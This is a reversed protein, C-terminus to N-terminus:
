GKCRRYQLHFLMGNALDLSDVSVSSRRGKAIIRSNIRMNVDVGCKSWVNSLMLLNDRKLYDNGSKSYLRSRKTKAKQGAFFYSRRLEAKGEVFGRFDATMASVQYGNPVHVPVAINCSKKSGEATYGSFLISLTSGDPTIAFHTSSSPCGSGNIAPAKFFVTNKSPTALSTQVTGLALLTTAVMLHLKKM